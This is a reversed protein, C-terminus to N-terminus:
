REGAQTQQVVIEVRRNNARGEASANDAIPRTEGFGQATLREASIGKTILYARVSEARKQSLTQNFEDAGQSDAHGEVVMTSKPDQQSLANAVDGLKRQASPLLESKNSAFLVAGSLTIVMGRPEQKVTGIGALAANAAAARRDAEERREREDTLQQGQTGLQARARMLSASTLEVQATESAHMSAITQEKEKVYQISRTRAETTRTRMDANYALDRTEQSDGEEVFSHEAVDLTQKAAHLGAPNVKASPGRSARDYSSRASILEPPVTSACGASAVLLLSLLGAYNRISV